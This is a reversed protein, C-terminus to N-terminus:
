RRSEVDCATPIDHECLGLVICAHMAVVSPLLDTNIKEKTPNRHTKVFILWEPYIGDALYYGKTYTHGMVEFSVLPVNGDALRGFV